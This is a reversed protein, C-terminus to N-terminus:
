KTSKKKTRTPKKFFTDFTQAQKELQQVAKQLHTKPSGKSARIFLRRTNSLPHDTICAAYEIDKNEMLMHAIPILITENEGTIELELETKTNKLTKIDM